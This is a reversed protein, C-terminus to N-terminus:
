HPSKKLERIVKQTLTKVMLSSNAKKIRDIEYFDSIKSYRSPVESLVYEALNKVCRDCACRKFRTLVELATERALIDIINIYESSNDKKDNEFELIKQEENKNHELKEIEKKTYLKANKNEASIDNDYNNNVSLKPNPASNGNILRMVHSTKNTKNSKINKNKNPM